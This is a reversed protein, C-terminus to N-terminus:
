ADFADDVEPFGLSACGLRSHWMRNNTFLARGTADALFRTHSPQALATAVSMGFHRVYWGTMALPEPVNIAFHEFRM